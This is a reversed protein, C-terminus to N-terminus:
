KWTNKRAIHNGLIQVFSVMIILVLVTVWTVDLMNRDHGYQIAFNGLGGAGVAGAMATLGILSITTITTARALPAISEKLYVNWIIDPSSKGMAQAAEVLGSDVQSLASEVQRTFFPTCGFVLPVIAGKVGIGTDMILRSLPMVATLLVIFPISRFINTVKDVTQFVPGNQLIGGPKTVVLLIGFILGLIFSVAGSWVTMVITDIISQYFEPLRDMVNPIFSVLFDHM